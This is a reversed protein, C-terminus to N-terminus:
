TGFFETDEEPKLAICINVELLSLIRIWELDATERRFFYMKHIKFDSNMHSSFMLRHCITLCCCNLFHVISRADFAVYTNCPTHSFLM